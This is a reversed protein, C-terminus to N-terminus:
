WLEEFNLKEKYLAQGVIVGSFGLNKALKIDQITTFGGSAYTPINKQKTSKLLKSNPGKLKGESSIDTSLISGIKPEIKSIVEEIKLGSNEKWGKTVIFGDKIDLAIMLKEKPIKKNLADLFKGDTAKSGVIIREANNQTLEIAYNIDRIGGGVQFKVNRKKLIDLIIDKNSGIGLAADLDILHIIDAGKSIWKKVWKKPEGYIDASDIRGNVLQVCNGSLIDVSPIVFM